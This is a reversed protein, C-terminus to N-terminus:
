GPRPSGETPESAVTIQEAGLLRGTRLERRLSVAVLVGTAVLVLWAVLLAIVEFRYDLNSRYVVASVVLDILTLVAGLRLVWATVRLLTSRSTAMSVGLCGFAGALLAYGVNEVGIFVGHPNYQSLPSLGELQGTLLAPQVVTLQLAYDVVLLSAGMVSVSLGARSFVRRPGPVLDHLGGALTVFALVMLLTPYMWLYDRPVFEAAATYPYAVCGAECYPGSRAPTTVGTVMSAVALVATSVGAWSTFRAATARDEPDIEPLRGAFEPEDSTQRM